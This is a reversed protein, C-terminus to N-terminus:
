NTKDLTKQVCTIFQLNRWFEPIDQAQYYEFDNNIPQKTIRATDTMYYQNDSALIKNSKFYLNSLNSKLKEITEAPPEEIKNIKGIEYYNIKKKDIEEQTLYSILVIPVGLAKIGAVFEPSDKDNIEYIIAVINLKFPKLKDINIPNNTVIACKSLQLQKFLIDENFDLDMRVEIPQQPNNVPLNFNPVLERIIMHSYKDGIHVTEFPVKYDINLLKFIANAVEEPKITNISKPFEETAYSPKGNKTRKHGEFLVQMDSRGFYPGSIATPSCSYLGVIPIDFSSAIHIGLSDPGLHLLSNQIVYALQNLNTRGKLDIVYQYSHEQPQGTQVIKIGKQELIPFLINIVDQWLDYNKSNYKSQAQFTIYKDVPM